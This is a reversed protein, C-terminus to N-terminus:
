RLHHTTQSFAQGVLSEGAAVVVSSTDTGVTIIGTATM